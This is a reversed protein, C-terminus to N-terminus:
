KKTEKKVRQNAAEQQIEAKNVIKKAAKQVRGVSIILPLLIHQRARQCTQCNQLMAATNLSKFKPRPKTM